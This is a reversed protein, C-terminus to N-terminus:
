YGSPVPTYSRGGDAYWWTYAPDARRTQAFYSFRVDDLRSALFPTELIVRMQAGFHWELCLGTHRQGVVYLGNNMFGINTLGFANAYETAYQNDEPFYEITILRRGNWSIPLIFIDSLYLNNAAREVTIGDSLLVPVRKGDILLYEGNYMETRLAQIAMGDRTVPTGADSSQCRYTAYVCAWADVIARFQEPAMVIAFQVGDMGVRKARMQLAFYHDTLAEVIDRGLSDTGDIAASFSEVISDAAPCLLNTANDRYGTTIQSSLGKFENMWGTYNNQTAGTYSGNWLVKELDIEMQNGITYLETALVSRTDTLGFMIDPILPNERPGENIISGPVDARSRLKGIEPIANLNTKVLFKGFKYVQECTKLAGVTPPNGCWGAANTTSNPATQGTMIGLLNDTYESRTLMFARFISSPHPQASFRDSRVGPYTLLGSQAANGQNYGHLAQGGLTTSAPDNKQGIQMAGAKQLVRLEDLTYENGNYTITDAM